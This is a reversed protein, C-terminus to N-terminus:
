KSYRFSVERSYNVSYRGLSKPRVILFTREGPAISLRVATQDDGKADVEVNDDAPNTWIEMNVLGFKIEEALLCPQKGGGNRHLMCLLRLTKSQYVKM